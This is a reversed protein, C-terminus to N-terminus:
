LYKDLVVLVRQYQKNVLLSEGKFLHPKKSYRIVKKIDVKAYKKPNLVSSGLVTGSVNLERVIEYFQDKSLEYKNLLEVVKIQTFIYEKLIVKAQDASLLKRSLGSFYKKNYTSQVAYTNKASKGTKTRLDVAGFQAFNLWARKLINFTLGISKAEDRIVQDDVKKVKRDVINVVGQEKLALYTKTAM